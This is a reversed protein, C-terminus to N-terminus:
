TCVNPNMRGQHAYTPLGEGRTHMRQSEHEWPTGIQKSFRPERANRGASLGEICEEITSGPPAVGDLEVAAPGRSENRSSRDFPAVGDSEAAAPRYDRSPPDRHIGTSCRWRAGRRYDRSANRSPPDQHLLAMARRQPRDGRHMGRHDFPAVGDLEV